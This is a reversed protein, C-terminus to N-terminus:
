AGALATAIEAAVRGISAMGDINRIKGTGQYHTILPATEAHYEVLRARVTEANDDARRTFSTSGCKDCVGDREPQKDTDHYGEGCEACTYRGSIRAIMAEDDVQINIIADLTMGKKVLLDDLAQAQATTRPFGDFIVGAAVDDEDLREDVIGIVIEDSVLEGADMAAKAKQGTATGAGVAARLMEGTSLQILGREATLIRAQTGKGAGPPGLLIINM